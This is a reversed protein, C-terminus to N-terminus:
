GHRAVRRVGQACLRLLSRHLARQAPRLLGPLRRGRVGYRHRRGQVAPAAGPECPVALALRLLLLLLLLCCCCCCCCCCALLLLSHSPHLCAATLFAVPLPTRTRQHTPQAPCLHAARGQSAGDPRRFAALRRVLNCSSDWQVRNVVGLELHIVATLGTALQNNPLVVLKDHPAWGYCVTGAAAAAAAEEPSSTANCVGPAAKVGRRQGITRRGQTGVWMHSYQEKDSWRGGMVGRLTDISLTAYHDVEVKFLAKSGASAPTAGGHFGVCITTFEGRVLPQPEGGTDCLGLTQGCEWPTRCLSEGAAAALPAATLLGALLLM